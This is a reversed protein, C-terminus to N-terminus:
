IHILSLGRRLAERLVRNRSKPDHEKSRKDKVFEVGWALGLGRVDGVREYREPLDGLEDRFLKELAQVRPLLRQIENITAIAAACALPHGGFTNSHAGPEFDLEKRFITAGIPMVGGGLSKALTIVDPTTAFHEIAFMRGTRGLGMQVEDDVLLIGYRDALKRLEPFFSKPPVVYGGEGLVPEVLMAATESPATQTHLLYRLEELCWASTEEPAWGYRHSYPFPAVFVGPMLPQYGARYITKSTTLSMTGVTRGHFSGQFVIVNPRGTAIRALKLAAEVAEAGSNSFFIGDLRSPLIGRLADALALMPPHFVINAQGHLLLGAQERVAAVVRPHCHGTNTVGIGSTFDLYANGDPDYLYAGEGRVALIDTYRFWVPSLHLHSAQTRMSPNRWDITGMPDMPFDM